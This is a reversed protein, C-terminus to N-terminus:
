LIGGGALANLAAEIQARTGDTTWNGDYLLIAKILSDYFSGTGAANTLV